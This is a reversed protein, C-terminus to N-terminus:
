PQKTRESDAPTFPTEPRTGSADANRADSTVGQGLANSRGSSKKGRLEAGLQVPRSEEGIMALLDEVSKKLCQAEHKLSAAASAEEEAGAANTQTIRDMQSVASNIQAIGTGQEASATAIQGVVEDVKRAHQAIETLRDSVKACVQVGRDSKQVSETIREETERAALASRQALNRVEDAVVAFGLGAEGARAAEVAANLALINTQFAIEDITKLIKSINDGSTKIATVAESMEQMDALGADAASRTLNAIAKADAAHEANRKTMSSMEELSASTQELAAAQDGAGEALSQSTASIQSSSEATQESSEYIRRISHSLPLILLRRNIYSLVLVIGLTLPLVLILTNMFGAKVVADIKDMSSKLVFAGHVQGAKWDEMAFGLLDKGDGTPSTKPDGHCMLCDSTLVIPRAFVIQNNAHDVQFFENTQQTEFLKLIREEEPTPSNKPNRAQRKPIRFEYGEKKAVEGIAKWAAVVPITSYLTSERLSAGKKIEEMLHPLDFAKNQNMASFSSRVQEGEIVVARMSAHTMEIGQRRIVQRQIWLSCAVGLALAAGAGVIIRSGLKM